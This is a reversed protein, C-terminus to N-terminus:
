GDGDGRESGDERVGLGAIDAQVSRLAVTLARAADGAQSLHISAKDRQVGIDRGQAEYLRGSAAQERTFEDLQDCVQQLRGTASYLDGVLSYADAPYELGHKEPMSAYTIAKSCQDFLSGLEATHERSHPGDPNLDIDM